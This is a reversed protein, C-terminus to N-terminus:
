NKKLLQMISDYTAKDAYKKLYICMDVSYKKKVGSLKRLDSWCINRNEDGEKLKKYAWM